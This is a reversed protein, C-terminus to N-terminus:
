KDTNNVTIKINLDMNDIYEKLKNLEAIAQSADITYTAVITKAMIQQSVIQKKGDKPLSEESM